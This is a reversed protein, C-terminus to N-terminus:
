ELLRIIAALGDDVPGEIEIRLVRRGRDQLAKWDGLGQAGFLEGFSAAPRKIGEVEPIPVVPLSAAVLQLFLGNGGDGKHLQGTSHLYRPGFGTTVPAQGRGRLRAALAELLPAIEPRPPLFALVAIYDGDRADALFRALRDESRGPGGDAPFKLVGPPPAPVGSHGVQGSSTAALVEITRKKTSEVDPQDFPNIKLFYGAVATAFEWLFFHGALGYADPLDLKVVPAGSGVMASAQPDLEAGDEQVLVFLRDSGYSEAAGVRSEPVPVIGRGEKGTSEAVLQELWAALPDLAPPMVLTLKDMGEEAATGMLSGLLAGPNLAPDAVRCDVAAARGAALLRRLDLGKLAAPLLGFATLASFRGGVDPSGHFTARYGLRRALGDLPTGPDTVAVFRKGARDGGLARRALDYFYSFLSVLEATTGSKSSVLFVTRELDLGAGFDRVTGPETTDLVDLALSGEKPPFVRAFVEPALSSGGMGLVVARTFGEQRLEAAFAEMAPIDKEAAEPADLWGLRDTIEAGDPKWVTHDRSWIRSIVNERGLRELGSVLKRGLRESNFIRLHRRDYDM